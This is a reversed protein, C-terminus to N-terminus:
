GDDAMRDSAVNMRHLTRAVLGISGIFAPGANEWGSRSDEEWCVVLTLPNLNGTDIERLMHILLDRPKWMSGNQEKFSRAEAISVPAASFDDAVRGRGKRGDRRM